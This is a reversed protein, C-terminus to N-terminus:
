SGAIALEVMGQVQDRDDLDAMGSGPRGVVSAFQGLALGALFGQAAQFSEAAIWGLLFELPIDGRYRDLMRALLGYRRPDRAARRFTGDYDVVYHPGYSGGFYYDLAVQIAARRWRRGTV